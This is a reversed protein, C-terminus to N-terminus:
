KRPPLGRCFTAIALSCYGGFWGVIMLVLTHGLSNDWVGFVLGVFVIVVTFVYAPVAWRVHKRRLSDYDALRREDYSMTM